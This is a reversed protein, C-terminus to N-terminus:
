SGSNLKLEAAQSGVELGLSVEYLLRVVEDPSINYLNTLVFIDELSIAQSGDEFAQVEATSSLGLESAVVDLGVRLEIRHQRFFGGIRALNEKSDQIKLRCDKLLPNGPRDLVLGFIDRVGSTFHFM